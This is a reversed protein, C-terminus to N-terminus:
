AVAHETITLLAKIAARNELSNQLMRPCGNGDLNGIYGRAGHPQCRCAHTNPRRSVVPISPADPRPSARGLILKEGPEHACGALNKGTPRKGPYPVSRRTQSTVRWLLFSNVTSHSPPLTM